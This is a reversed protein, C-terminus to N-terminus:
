QGLDRVIVDRSARDRLADIIVQRHCVEVDHEVCMLACRREDLHELLTDLADDGHEALHAAYRRRGETPRGSKYLDRIPKPNGLARLHVYEIGVAALAESLATKAFGRRRSIPLERVDVLREIGAARLHDAFETVQPFREYGISGLVLADAGTAADSDIPRTSIAM